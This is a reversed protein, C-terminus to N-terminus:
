RLPQGALRVLSVGSAHAETLTPEGDRILVFIRRWITDFSVWELVNRSQGPRLRMRGKLVGTLDDRGGARAAGFSCVLSTWGM